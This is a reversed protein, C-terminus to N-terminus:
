VRPVVLVAGALVVLVVLLLQGELVEAVVLM